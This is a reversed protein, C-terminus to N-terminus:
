FYLHELLAASMLLLIGLIYFRLPFYSQLAWGLRHCYIALVIKQFLYAIFTACAAGLAGWFPIFISSLVIHLALEAVSAKLLGIRKGVGLLLAQPFLVRSLVLLLHIQFVSAALLFDNGYLFSFITKAGLYLFASIPFLILILRQTENLLRKLEHTINIDPQAFRHATAASLANALALALPLERAGYRFALFTDPKIAQILWGDWYLAFGGISAALSLPLMRKLYILIEAIRFPFHTFENKWLTSILVLRGLGVCALALAIQELSFQWYAGGITLIFNTGLSLVAVIILSIYRKKVYLGYELLTSALTTFTWLAIAVQETAVTSLIFVIAITAFLAGIVNVYFTNVFAYPEKSSETILLQNTGWIWFFSLGSQWFTITEYLQLVDGKGWIRSM